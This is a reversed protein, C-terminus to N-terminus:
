GRSTGSTASPSSDSTPFLDSCISSTTWPCHRKWFIRRTTCPAVEGGQFMWIWLGFALGDGVWIAGWLIAARLNTGRSGFLLDITFLLISLGFFAIWPQFRPELMM